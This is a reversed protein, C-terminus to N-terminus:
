RIYYGSVRWRGNDMMPTVTETAQKKNEFSTEFQIVVYEGEPAGPLSTTYVASKMQRSILKGLPKRHAELLQEWQLQGVSNRFYSSAERWSEDYNGQDTVALWKGAASVAAAEKETSGAGAVACSVVLFIICIGIQLSRNVM